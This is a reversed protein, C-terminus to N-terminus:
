GEGACVDSTRANGKSHYMGNTNLLGQRTLLLFAFYAVVMYACSQQAHVHVHVHVHQVSGM